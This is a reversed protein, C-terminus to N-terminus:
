SILNHSRDLLANEFMVEIHSTHVVFLPCSPKVLLGRGQEAHVNLVEFAADALSQGLEAAAMSDEIVFPGVPEQRLVRDIGCDAGEFMIASLSPVEEVDEFPTWGMESADLAAIGKDGDVPRRVFRRRRGWESDAFGVLNGDGARETLIQAFNRDGHRESFASLVAWRHDFGCAGNM